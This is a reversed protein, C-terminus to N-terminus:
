VGGIRASGFSRAGERAARRRSVPDAEGRGGGDIEGREGDGRARRDLPSQVVDDVAREAGAEPLDPRPGSTRTLGSKRTQNPGSSTGAGPPAGGRTRTPWIMARGDSGASSRPRASGAVFGGRRRGPGDRRQSAVVQADEDLPESSAAGEVAAARGASGPVVQRLQLIRPSTTVRGRASPGSSRM